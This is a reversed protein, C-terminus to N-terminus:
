FWFFFILRLKESSKQLGAHEAVSDHRLSATNIRVAREADIRYFAPGAM